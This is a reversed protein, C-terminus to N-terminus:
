VSERSRDHDVVLALARVPSGTGEAILLPLSVFWFSHSPIEQINCVNESNLIKRERCVTHAPYLPEAPNDISVADCGINICGADALFEAAERGLGAYEILYQPTGWSLSAGTYYLFTSRPPIKLQLDDLAKELDRETISTRPLVHSVDVWVAPTIFFDLPLEAITLDGPLIHSLSDVHTSTHDSLLMGKVAYSFGNRRTEEHTLHDWVVTKLHGPYVPMGTYIKQSLETVTYEQEGIRLRSM